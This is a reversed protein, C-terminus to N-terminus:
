VRNEERNRSRRIRVDSAHFRVRWYRAQGLGAQLGRRWYFWGAVRGGGLRCLTGQLRLPPKAPPSPRSAPVGGHLLSESSTQTDRTVSASVAAARVAFSESRAGALAGDTQLRSVASARESARIRARSAPGPTAGAAVSHRLAAVSACRWASACRGLRCPRPRATFPRHAATVPIWRRITADARGVPADRPASRRAPRGRRLSAVRIHVRGAPGAYAPEGCVQPGGGHGRTPICTCGM